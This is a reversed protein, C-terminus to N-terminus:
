LSRSRLPLLSTRLTLTLTSLAYRTIAVGKSRVLDAIKQYLKVEDIPEQPRKAKVLRVMEFPSQEFSELELQPIM